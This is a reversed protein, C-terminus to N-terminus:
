RDLLPLITRTPGSREVYPGPRTEAEGAGAM